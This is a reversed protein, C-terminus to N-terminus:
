RDTVTRRLRLTVIQRLATNILAQADLDDACRGRLGAGKVAAAIVHGVGERHNPGVLAHSAAVDEPAIRSPGLEDRSSGIHAARRTLRKHERQAIARTLGDLEGRAVCVM